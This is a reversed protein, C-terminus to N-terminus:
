KKHRRDVKKRYHEPFIQVDSFSDSYEAIWGTNRNLLNIIVAVAGYQFRFLLVDECHKRYHLECRIAELKKRPNNTPIRMFNGITKSATIFPWDKNDTGVLHAKLESFDFEEFLRRRSTYISELGMMLFVKSSAGESKDFSAVKVKVTGTSPDYEMNSEDLGKIKIHQKKFEEDGEVEISGIKGKGPKGKKTVAGMRSKEMAFVSNQLFKGEIKSFRANCNDCVAGKEVVYDKNGLSEPVIHEVSKAENEEDCFICKM